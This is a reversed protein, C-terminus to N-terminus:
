PIKLYVNHKKGSSEPTHKLLNILGKLGSIKQAKKKHSLSIPSKPPCVALSEESLSRGFGQSFNSWPYEGIPLWQIQPIWIIKILDGCEPGLCYRVQGSGPQKVPAVSPQASITVPEGDDGNTAFIRTCNSASALICCLLYTTLPTRTTSIFYRYIIM